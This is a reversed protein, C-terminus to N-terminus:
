KKKKTAKIGLLQRIQNINQPKGYYWGQAAITLPLAKFYAAQQETEIGEVVIGLKYKKAISLIQPVISVTLADTGVTQTFAKDMKLADVQLQGLLALSSYGTGFDDIYVKHGLARLRNIGDFSSSDAASRETLEIGIQHPSISKDNFRRLAEYFRDEQLDGAEINVNVRLQANKQLINGMDAHVRALVYCTLSTMFGGKEAAEIVVDAPVFDDPHIEWRILAEFASIKGTKVNVIPQYYVDLENRSMARQLQTTLSQTKNFYRLLFLVALGGALLGFLTFIFDILWHKKQLLHEDVSTIVCIHNEASCFKVFYQEDMSWSANSLIDTPPKIHNHEPYHFLRVISKHEPAGAYISYSYFPREFSAFAANNFVINTDNENLVTGRNNSSLLPIDGYIVTGDSRLIGRNYSISGPTERGLLVSCELRGGALRGLDNIFGSSHILSRIFRLDNTSCFEHPSRNAEHITERAEVLIKETQSLLEQTYSAADAHGLYNEVYRALVKSSVVCVLFFVLAIFPVTNFISSLKTRKLILQRAKM